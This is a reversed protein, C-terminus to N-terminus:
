KQLGLPNNKMMNFNKVENMIAREVNFKNSAEQLSTTALFSKIRNIGEREYKLVEIDRLGFSLGIQTTSIGPNVIRMSIIKRALGHIGPVINAFKVIANALGVHNLHTHKHNDVLIRGSDDLKLEKQKYEKKTAHQIQDVAALGTKSYSQM